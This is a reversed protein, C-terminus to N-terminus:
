SGTDLLWCDVVLLRNIHGTVSVVRSTKGGNGERVAQASLITGKWYWRGM